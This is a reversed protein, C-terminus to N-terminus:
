YLIGKTYHNIIHCDFLRTTLAEQEIEITCVEDFDIGRKEGEVSLELKGKDTLLLTGEIENEEDKEKVYLLCGIYSELFLSLEIGFFLNLLFPSKPVIESFHLTIARRLCQNIDLLEQDEIMPIQNDLHKIQVINEFPILLLNGVDTQLILFNVGADVITGTRKLPQKEEQCAVTVSICQKRLGRLSDQFARLNEEDRELGLALLLRNAKEICENLEELEEPPLSSNPSPFEPQPIREPCTFPSCFLSEDEDQPVCDPCLISNDRKEKWEVHHRSIQLKSRRIKAM